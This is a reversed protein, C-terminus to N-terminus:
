KADCLCLCLVFGLVVMDVVFVCSSVVFGVLM